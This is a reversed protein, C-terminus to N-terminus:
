QPWSFNRNTRLGLLSACPHYWSNSKTLFEVSPIWPSSGEIWYSCSWFRPFGEESHLLMQETPHASRNAQIKLKGQTCSWHASSPAVAIAEFPLCWSSFWRGCSGDCRQWRAALPLFRYRYRTLAEQDCSCECSESKRYPSPYFSFLPWPCFGDQALFQCFNM